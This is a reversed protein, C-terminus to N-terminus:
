GSCIIINVNTNSSVDGKQFQGASQQICTDPPQLCHPGQDKSESCLGGESIYCQHLIHSYRHGLIETVSNVQEKHVQGGEQPLLPIHSQM